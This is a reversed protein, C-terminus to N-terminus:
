VEVRTIAKYQSEDLWDAADAQAERPTEYPGSAYILEGNLWVSSGWCLTDEDKNCRIQVEDTTNTM